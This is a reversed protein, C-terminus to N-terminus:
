ARLHWGDKARKFRAIKPLAPLSDPTINLAAAIPTMDYAVEYSATEGGDGSKVIPDVHILRPQAVVIDVFVRNKPPPADDAPSVTSFPHTRAGSKRLYPRAADSLTALCVQRPGGAVGPFHCFTLDIVHSQALRIYIQSQDRGDKDSTVIDGLAIRVFVPRKALEQRILNSAEQLSLEGDSSAPSTPRTKLDEVANNRVSQHQHGVRQVLIIATIAGVLLVVGLSTAVLRKSTSWQLVM